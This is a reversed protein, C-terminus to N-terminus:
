RRNTGVDEGELAGALGGLADAVARSGIEVTTSNGEGDGLVAFVWTTNASVAVSAFTELTLKM